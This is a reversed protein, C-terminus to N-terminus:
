MELIALLDIGCQTEQPRFNLPIDRLTLLSQMDKLPETVKPISKDPIPDMCALHYQYILCFEFLQQVNRLLCSGAYIM